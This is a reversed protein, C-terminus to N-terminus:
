CLAQRHPRGESMGPMKAKDRTQEDPLLATKGPHCFFDAAAKREGGARHGRQSAAGQGAAAGRVLAAAQQPTRCADLIMLPRQAMIRISSRNRVGALGALIAEDQIDCGRRWLALALEVAIAANGAAHLGPFDPSIQYGGYDMQAATGEGGEPITIDEEEPVVLECDTKGAAM